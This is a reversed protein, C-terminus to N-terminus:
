FSFRWKKLSNQNGYFKFQQMSKLLFKLFRLSTVVGNTLWIKFRNMSENDLKFKKFSADICLGCVCECVCLRGWM